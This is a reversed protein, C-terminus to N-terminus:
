ELAGTSDVITQDTLPTADIAIPVSGPALIVHEASLVAATGGHPTYEVRRGSLLKGTGPLWTVGNGKFLADVGSTLKGVVSSKDAMMQVLDISTKGVKIGFEAFKGHTEAFRHSVDLLAKSPICGWNLCVGGLVPKRAADLSKDICATAFGLQAARIAAHYGAPGAGIVIVDYRDAM